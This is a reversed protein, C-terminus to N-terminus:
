LDGPRLAPLALAGCFSSRTKWTRGYRRACTSSPATGATPPTPTLTLVPASGLGTIPRPQEWSKPGRRSGM